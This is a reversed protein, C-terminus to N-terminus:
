WEWSWQQKLFVDRQVAVCYIGVSACDSLIVFEALATFTGDPLRGVGVFDASECLSKAGDLAGVCDKKDM